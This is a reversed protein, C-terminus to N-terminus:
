DTIKEHEGVSGRQWYGAAKVWQKDLRRETVLYRRVARAVKSEAAAWAFVDRAPLSISQLVDLIADPTGAPAGRRYVWRIDITAKSTFELQEAETDIEAVVIAKTGAHLEELRRGIAPLATEDGILLHCGIDAPIIFSGRPGGVALSQGPKASIAWATAVGAEHIAFDIVLERADVDFRRPTFDRMPPKTFSGPTSPGPTSPDFILKVHDDFGLSSFGALDDGALTVRLMKSSLSEVRRVTLLKRVNTEHRVRVINPGDVAGLDQSSTGLSL